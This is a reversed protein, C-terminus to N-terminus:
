TAADTSEALSGSELMHAVASLKEIQKKQTIVKEEFAKAKAQEKDREARCREVRALLVTKESELSRIRKVHREKEEKFSEFFRRAKLFREQLETVRAVWGDMLVELEKEEKRTQLFRENEESLEALLQPKRAADAEKKAELKAYEQERSRMIENYKDQGDLHFRTYIELQEKLLKNEQAAKAEMHAIEEAYSNVESLTAQLEESMLARKAEDDKIAQEYKEEAARNHENLVARIERVKQVQEQMQKLREQLTQNCKEEEALTKQEQELEAGRQHFKLLQQVLREALSSM